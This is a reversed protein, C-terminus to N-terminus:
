ADHNLVEEGNNLLAKRCFAHASCFSSCTNLPEPAFRGSKMAATAEGVLQRTTERFSAWEEASIKKNALDTRLKKIEPTWLGAAAERKEMSYYTGGLIATQTERALFTEVALLYVM